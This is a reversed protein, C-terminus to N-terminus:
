RVLAPNHRGDVWEVAFGNDELLIAAARLNANAMRWDGYIGHDADTSWSVYDAESTWYPLRVTNVGSAKAVELAYAVIKRQQDRARRLISWADEPPMQPALESEWRKVSRVEVSLEGALAAQTMGVMERTAKFAAKTM